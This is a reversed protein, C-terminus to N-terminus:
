LFIIYNHILIEQQALLRAHTLIVHILKVFGIYLTFLYFMHLKLLSPKMSYNQILELM